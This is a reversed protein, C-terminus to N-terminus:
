AGKRRPLMPLVSVALTFALQLAIGTPSRLADTALHGWSENVASAGGVYIAYSVIRGAFFAATCPLLPLKLLGAAVFLQGSPLPSITFLALGGFARHRHQVLWERVERLRAQRKESLRGSFHQAASALVFRGSAAALAGLIVLPVVALQSNLRILVLVAWTPPAFAPVLNVAFVIVFALVFSM